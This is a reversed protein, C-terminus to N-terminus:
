FVKNRVFWDLRYIWMVKHSDYFRFDFYKDPFAHIQEILENWEYSYFSRSGKLLRYCEARYVQKTYFHFESVTEWECFIKPSNKLRASEEDSMSLGNENWNNPILTIYMFFVDDWVYFLMWFTMKM